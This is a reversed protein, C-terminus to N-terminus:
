DQRHYRKRYESPSLGTAQKFIRHFSAKSNFGSDYALCIIKSSLNDTDELKSKVEKVRYENVFTYFNKRLEHNIVDSLRRESLKSLRSLQALNLTPDLFYKNQEMLHQLYASSRNKPDTVSIRSILIPKNITQIQRYGGISLWYLIGAYVFLFSYKYVSYVGGPYQKGVIEDIAVIYIGIAIFLVVLVKIISKLWDLHLHETFSLQNLLSKNYIKLKGFSLVAYIFISFLAAFEFFEATYHIYPYPFEDKFVLHYVSHIYNLFIPAFHWLHKGRFHFDSQTLSIVYFYLAPGIWYSLSFPLWSLWLYKNFMDGELLYPTFTFNLSIILLALFYNAKRNERKALILLAFLFSNLVACLVLLQVFNLPFEWLQNTLGIIM